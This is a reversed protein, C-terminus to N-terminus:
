GKGFKGALDKGPNIRNVALSDQLKGSKKVEFVVRKVTFLFLIVERLSFDM